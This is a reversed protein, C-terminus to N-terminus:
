PTQEEAPFYGFGSAPATSKELIDLNSAVAAVAGQAIVELSDEASDHVSISRDQLAEQLYTITEPSRDHQLATAAAARVIHDSDALLHYLDQRLESVVGIVPAAELARLRRTRSDLQLEQSLGRVAHPDVKKVLQGTSLRTDPELLDFAALFSKLDFESLSRRAADRVIAHPSDILEILKTLSGPLGRTRLQCAVAAQVQPEQDRIAVLALRNGEAGMFEGLAEAAARRGVPVGNELIQQIVKFKEPKSMGSAMVMQVVSHQAAADLRVMWKLNGGIWPFSEVRRLNIRAARSPAFGIKKLLSAIFKDDTRRSMLRLASAPSRSDDLYGLVLRMVGTKKGHTLLDITELYCPDHPNALIQKLVANERKVLLLFAEVIGSCEHKSFRRVSEELSAVVSRRALQPNRRKKYDRPGALEAYLMDALTVLTKAALDAHPNAASEAANILAPILDYERLHIAADCASPCLETQHGLIADRLVNPFRGPSEVVRAKAQDDSDSWRRLLEWRGSPNRRHLLANLAGDQVVKHPSALADFLVSVASENKSVTLLKLTKEVGNAM